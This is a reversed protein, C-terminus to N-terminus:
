LKIKAQVSPTFPSFSYPASGFALTYNVQFYVLGYCRKLLIGKGCVCSLAVDGGRLVNTAILDILFIFYKWNKFFFLYAIGDTNM